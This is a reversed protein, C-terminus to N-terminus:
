GVGLRGLRLVGRFRYERVGRFSATRRKRSAGLLYHMRKRTVKFGVTPPPPLGFSLGYGAAPLRAMPRSGWPRQNQSTSLDTLGSVARYEAHRSPGHELM